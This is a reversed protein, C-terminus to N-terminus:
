EEGTSVDILEVREGSELDVELVVGIDPAYFKHEQTDPEMPTGDFTQLCGNFAGFPVTVSESTALVEGYDEAEGLYFEQRYLDGVAPTAKMVIGPAAGDVGGLWSGDVDTIEGDEYNLSIEGFYWVNGDVDQAFWDLTDEVLEGDISVTDRVVTCDVGLIEKTEDLVTVVITEVGDETEARYTLTTGPTLPMFQHDVGEVFDAPDIDATPIEDEGLREALELRAKLQAGALEREEKFEEKAEDAAEDDGAALARALALQYDAKAEAKVSSRLKKAVQKWIKSAKPGAEAGGTQLMAAATAVLLALAAACRRRSNTNTTM